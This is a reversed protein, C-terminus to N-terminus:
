NSPLLDMPQLNFVWLPLEKKEYGSMVLPEFWGPRSPAHLQIVERNEITQEAYYRSFMSSLTGIMEFGENLRAEPEWRFEIATLQDGEMFAQPGDIEKWDGYQMFIWAIQKETSDLIEDEDCYIRAGSITFKLLGDPTMPSTSNPDAELRFRLPPRTGITRDDLRGLENMLMGTKLDLTFNGEGDVLREPSVLTWIGWRAWYVALKLQGGTVSAYNQLKQWYDRTMLRRVQGLPNDIYVNKVEILWHTGDPLVVRFDPPQFYEEPYVRGSDEGKLLSYGGLSVLMAEFMAETRQGHLLAPNALARSLVDEAFAAFKPVAQPHNLSIGDELSFKALEALLEFPKPEPNDPNM